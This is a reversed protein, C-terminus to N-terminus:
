LGLLLGNGKKKTGRIGLLTNLQVESEFQVNPSFLEDLQINGMGHAWHFLEVGFPSPCVLVGPQDADPFQKKIYDLGGMHYFNEILYERSLGVVVHHALIDFNEEESFEMACAFTDLPIFIQINRRLEDTMVSSKTGVFL